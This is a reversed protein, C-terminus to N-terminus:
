RPLVQLQTGERGMVTVSSGEALRHGPELNLAAWSQGQWRVRGRGQLDFEDIVEALEADAAPPIRGSSQREAWRRLGLYGGSVLALFLLIQISAPLPVLAAVVTLLLSIVGTLLLLGDSDLGTLVLVLTGIAVLLWILPATIVMAFESTSIRCHSVRFHSVEGGM